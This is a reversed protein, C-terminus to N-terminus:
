ECGWGDGDADLDYIDIGTVRVTGTYAPGNGEGGACDYDSAPALCPSYDCPLPPPAARDILLTVVRGPMLRGYPRQDVLRGTPWHTIRQKIRVRYGQERLTEEAKAVSMGTVRPVPPPAKAITLEIVTGELVFDFSGPRQRLVDGRRATSFKAGVIEGQLDKKELVLLARASPRGVVDPVQVNFVPPEDPVSESCSALSFTAVLSCGIIIKRRGM